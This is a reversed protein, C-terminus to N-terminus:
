FNLEDDGYNPFEASAYVPLTDIPRDTRFELVVLTGPWFHDMVNKDYEPGIRVGGENSLVLLEGENRRIVESVVWLGIGRFPDGTNTVNKELALRIASCDNDVQGKYDPSAELAERIGRGTDAIVLETRKKKKYAQASVLADVPSEAHYFVNEVVESMCSKLTNAAREDLSTHEQLAEILARGADGVAQEDRVHTVPHFGKAERRVFDEPVKVELETLFNMRQIYQRVLPGRPLLIAGEALLGRVWLDELAAALITIGTPSCFIVSTMDLLVKCAENAESARTALELQELVKGITDFTVKGPVKVRLVEPDDPDLPSVSRIM